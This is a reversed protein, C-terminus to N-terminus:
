RSCRPSIFLCGRAMRMTQAPSRPIATQSAHLFRLPFAGAAEEAGPTRRDPLGGEEGAAGASTEPVGSPGGFNAAAAGELSLRPPEQIGSKTEPKARARGDIEGKTAPSPRRRKLQNTPLHRSLGRGDLVSETLREQGPQDGM